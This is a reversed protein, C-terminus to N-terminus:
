VKALGLEELQRTTFARKREGQARHKRADHPPTTEFECIPCPKASITRTGKRSAMKSATGEALRYAFGLSNLEDIAATARALAEKKVNELLATREQDLAKLRQLPNEAM